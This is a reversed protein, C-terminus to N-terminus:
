AEGKSKPAKDGTDVLKGDAALQAVLDAPQGEVKDGEVYETRGITLRVGAAVVYAM